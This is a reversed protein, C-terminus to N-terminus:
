VASIQVLIPFFAFLKHVDTIIGFIPKRATRRKSGRALFGQEEKTFRNAPAARRRIRLQQWPMPRADNQSKRDRFTNYCIAPSFSISNSFVRFVIQSRRLSFRETKTNKQNVKRISM